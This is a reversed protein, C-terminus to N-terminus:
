LCNKASPMEAVIDRDNTNMNDGWKTGTQTKCKVIWPDDSTPFYMALKLANKKAQFPHM